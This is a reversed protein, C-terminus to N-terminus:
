GPYGCMDITSEHVYGSVGDVAYMWVFCVDEAPFVRPM